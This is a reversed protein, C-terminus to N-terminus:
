HEARERPSSVAMAFALTVVAAAIPTTKANWGAPSLAARVEAELLSAVVMIVGLSGLIRTAVRSPGVGLRVTAAIQVMVLAIPPSLATGILWSDRAVREPEGRWGLLALDYPRRERLAVM